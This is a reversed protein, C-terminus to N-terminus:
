RPAPSSAENGLEGHGNRRRHRLVEATDKVTSITRQPARIKRVRQYGLLALLATTVLMLLFVIGYAAWSPLWVSLLEALFFFFFFLSFTLVALALIFLVSGKVGKKVEATVEARALEVESRVLTSVQSAVERVLGGVSQNEASLVPEPTLPISPLVPPVEASSPSTQSAVPSERM